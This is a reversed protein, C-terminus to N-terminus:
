SGEEDACKVLVDGHCAMPACWCAVNKGRLEQKVARLLEENSRLYQEFKEIVQGRDGDKGLVYPNGFRTRRDVRVCDAPRNPDRINWVRSGM